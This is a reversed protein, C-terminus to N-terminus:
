RPRGTLAAPGSPLPSQPHSHAFGGHTWLKQREGVGKWNAKLKCARRNVPEGVLPPFLSPLGPRGARRTPVPPSNNRRLAQGLSDRSVCSCARSQPQASLFQLPAFPFCSAAHQGTDEPVSAGSPSPDGESSWLFGPPSDPINTKRGFMLLKSKGGAGSAVRCRAAALPTGQASQATGLLACHTSCLQAPPIPSPQALSPSHCRLASAWMAVGLGPTASTM